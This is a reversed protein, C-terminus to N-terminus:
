GNPFDVMSPGVTRDGFAMRRTILFAIDRASGAAGTSSGAARASAASRRRPSRRPVVKGFAAPLGLTARGARGLLHQGPRRRRVRDGFLEPHQDALAMITMGGMSHGVLVVPGAPATGRDGRSTTASSTSPPTSPPRQTRLPRPQAPGLLGHPRRGRLDRRQYHWSDQNSATATASSSRSAAADDPGTWRSTCRCETPPWSPRRAAACSASRSTAPGPRPAAADRGVAYAPRAAVAAGVGVAGATGVAAGVLGVRKKNMDTDGGYTRPVRAGIRTVIEYTITGLM